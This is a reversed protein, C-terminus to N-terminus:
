AHRRTRRVLGLPRRPAICLARGRWGVGSPSAGPSEVPQRVPKKPPPPAYGRSGDHLERRWGGVLPCSTAHSVSCTSAGSAAPAPSSPPAWRPRVAAQRRNRPSLSPAAKATLEADVAEDRVEVAPAGVPRRPRHLRARIAPPARHLARSYRQRSRASRGRPGCRHPAGRDSSHGRACRRLAGRARVRCGVSVSV